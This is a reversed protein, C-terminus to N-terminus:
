PTLLAFVADSPGLSPEPGLILDPAVSMGLYHVQDRLYLWSTKQRTVAGRLEEGSVPALTLRRLERLAARTAEVGDSAAPLTAEIELRGRGPGPVYSAQASIVHSGEEGALVRALRTGPGGGLVDAIV